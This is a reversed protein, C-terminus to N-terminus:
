IVAGFFHPGEPRALHEWQTLWLDAYRSVKNGSMSLEEVNAMSDIWITKKGLKKGFFLAFFGPLAGTSVIIDPRLIVVLWLMHLALWVIRFRDWRTADPVVYFSSNGVQLKYEADTAVYIKELGEFAPELRRLQVWHGGSSSVLMVVNKVVVGQEQGNDESSYM